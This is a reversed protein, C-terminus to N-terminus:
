YAVNIIKCGVQKSVDLHQNTQSYAHGHLKEYLMYLFSVEKEGLYYVHWRNVMVVTSKGVTVSINMRWGM